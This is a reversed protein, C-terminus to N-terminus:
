ASGLFYAADHCPGFPCTRGELRCQGEKVGRSRESLTAAHFRGQTRFNDGLSKGIKRLRQRTELKKNEETRRDPPPGAKPAVDIKRGGRTQPVPQNM